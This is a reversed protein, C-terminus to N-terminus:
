HGLGASVGGKYSPPAAKPPAHPPRHLPPLVLPFVDPSVDHLALTMLAYGLETPHVYDSMVDSSLSGDPDLFVPGIDAFRARPDGALMQALLANTERIRERQPDFPSPMEPQIGLVLVKAQPQLLHIALVDVLLSTAVVNPPVGLLLDAAGVDVVVTSPRIGSLQGIALQWLLTETSQGPVGYDAARLPALFWSWLPAGSGYAYGYIISDGLFVVRPGGKPILSMLVDGWAVIFAPPLVPHIGAASLLCRDELAEVGPRATACNSRAPM